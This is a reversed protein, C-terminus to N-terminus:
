EIASPESTSADRPRMLKKLDAIRWDEVVTAWDDCLLGYTEHDNNVPKRPNLAWYAFDADTEGLYRMLNDWYHHDGAGGGSPAGFEGVWVPAIDGRLLYGWNREMDLAFSPYPRKAYTVLRSWGSWKYVHSSYVVRDPVSLKMPRSRAGSCDNASGIGEVFMLWNPNLQLLAESARESATALMNWTMTGWLGRPENRLDAGIVLPDDIHPEM